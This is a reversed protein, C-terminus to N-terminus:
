KNNIEVFLDTFKQKIITNTQVLNGVSNESIVYLNLNRKFSNLDQVINCRKVAGFKNPMAYTLAIYDQKSVARNQSAYFDLTKIKIEETQDQTVEGVIPEDNSVEISSAVQSVVNNSLSM